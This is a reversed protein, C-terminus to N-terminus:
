GPTGCCRHLRAALVQKVDDLPWGAIGLQQAPQGAQGAVRERQDPGRAWPLQEDRDRELDGAAEPQRDHEQEATAHQGPDQSGVLSAGAGRCRTDKGPQDRQGADDGREPKGGREAPLDAGQEAGAGLAVRLAADDVDGARDFQFGVLGGGEV